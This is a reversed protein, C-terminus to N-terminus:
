RNDKTVLDFKSLFLTASEEGDIQPKEETYAKCMDDIQSVPTYRNFHEIVEIPAKGSELIAIGTLHIRNKRINVDAATGSVQIGVGCNTIENDEINIVM